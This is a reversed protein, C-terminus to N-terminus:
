GSAARSGALVGIRTPAVPHRCGGAQVALDPQDRREVLADERTSQGAWVIGDPVGGAGAM